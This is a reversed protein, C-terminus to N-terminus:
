CCRVWSLRSSIQAQTLVYQGRSWIPYIPLGADVRRVISAERMRRDLPYYSWWTWVLLGLTPVMAVVEDVLVWDRPGSGLRGAGGRILHLGGLYLDALFTLLCLVPLLATLRHLGRLRRRARAAEDNMAGLTRRCMWFYILGIWVKPVIVGVAMMWGSVGIPFRDFPPADHLFIALALGLLLLQM